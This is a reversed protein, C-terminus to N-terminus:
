RRPRRGRNRLRRDALIFLAAGAMGGFSVPWWGRGIRRELEVTHEGAELPVAVFLGNITEPRIVEGDVRVELEPTVKESSALLFPVASKTRVVLSSGDRAVSLTAQRDLPPVAALDPLIPSIPQEIVGEERFDISRDALMAEFPAVRTRWLAYFRGEDALNEYLRGEPLISHLTFPSMSRGYVLRGSESRPMSGYLDTVSVVLILRNGAGAFPYVPAYIKSQSRIEDPTFVRSWVKEGTEPRFLDFAVRPRPGSPELDHVNLDIAYMGPMVDIERRIETGPWLRLLGNVPEVITAGEMIRWRLIDISPQEVLWRVNLAGLLSDGLDFTLSNFQIVTGTRGFSDPAFRNLLARWRHESGFHSRIDEVRMLEASNPWLYDFMPAVRSPAPDRHLFDITPTVPVAAVESTVYPYFRVALLALDAAILSAGILLAVRLPRPRWRRLPSRLLVGVGAAALFAVPLPLLFRLRALTTFRVGPLSGVARSLPEFAGFMLAILILAALIWFWRASRGSRFCGLIVLILTLIGVYITSEVFNNSPGLAPDGIWLQDAPDGLRLPDILGALHSPPYTGVEEAAVSARSELYGTRKVLWFFSALPAAAILLALLASGAARLIEAAPFRRSLVAHFIAYGLAIWAGYAMTAPFGSFAFGIALLIMLAVPTTRRQFIRCIIWLLGPYLVTANTTQWLWWVSVIPSAAYITAGIAAPLRGLKEQRLWGYTLGFAVLLKILILGSYSWLLPLLLIPVLVIPSLVAAAVSGYGPIGGGVYPNWHFAPARDKLLSWLPYYSSPPDSLLHNQADVDRITAWPEHNYYVDNPSLVRGFFFTPVFLLLLIGAPLAIAIAHKRWLRRLGRAESSM